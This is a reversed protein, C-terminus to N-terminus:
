SLAKRLENQSYAFNVYIQTSLISKHGMATKVLHIDRTKQYLRVGFTHRLSHFVKAKAPRYKAWEKKLWEYGYGFVFGDPDNSALQHAKVWVTQPIPLERSLGGKLGYIFVSKSDPIMDSLRLDLLESARAGTYYAMEILVRTKFPITKSNKLMDFMSKVEKETLFKDKTIIKSNDRQPRPKKVRISTKMPAGESIRSMNVLM